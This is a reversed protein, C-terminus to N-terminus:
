FKTAKAVRTKSTCVPVYSTESAMLRQVEESIQNPKYSAFTMVRDRRQACFEPASSNAIHQGFENGLRTRLKDLHSIGNGKYNNKYYEIMTHEAKRLADLNDRTFGTYAAVLDQGISSQKCTVTIVMLESHLRLLHEAEAESASYCSNSAAFAQLPMAAFMATLAVLAIFRM